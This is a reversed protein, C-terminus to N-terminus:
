YVISDDSTRHDGSEELPVAGRRWMCMALILLWVLLFLGAPMSLAMTATSFGTFAIAGGSATTGVGGIIALRGLWRPYTGDILLAVGLTTVTLGSLLSLVSAFGIELRRVTLAAHFASERQAPPVAAWADVMKKLVIGDVTQLGVAVALSAIGGAAAIRAWPAGSRATLQQALVLLAALALVIGTLQALHSVIWLRDAAYETFAAVADNPDADMPHLLTGFFLLFSGAVTCLAGIRSQSRSLPRAM